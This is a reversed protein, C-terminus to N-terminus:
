QSLLQQYLKSWENFCRTYAAQDCDALAIRCKEWLQNCQARLRAVM